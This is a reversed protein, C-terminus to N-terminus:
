LRDNYVMPASDAKYNTQIIPNQAAVHLGCLLLTIILPTIKM